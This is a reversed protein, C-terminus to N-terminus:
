PLGVPTFGYRELVRQGHLSMTFLAFREAGPRASNMVTLAYSAGVAPPDPITVVRAGAVERAAEVANTWYTLFIDARREAILMGYVSRGPPPSPSDPGGTLKLAKRNLAAFSGPRLKDAKEFLQWAYDGSPDAEPTSTGLKLRPDLMRDLLTDSTAVVGPAVLACLRNRAFVVPRSARGALALTQAHGINASTFVDAREGKEIRERLLGSAGFTPMVAPGGAATFAQGIETMAARLSGAAYVRIANDQASAPTGVVLTVAGPFARFTM